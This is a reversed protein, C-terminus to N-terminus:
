SISGTGSGPGSTGAGTTVGSVSTVTVTVSAFNQFEEVVAEAIAELLGDRLQNGLSGYDPVKAALKTHISNRLRTPNLPM